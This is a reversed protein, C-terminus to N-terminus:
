IIDYQTSILSFMKLFNNKKWMHFRMFAHKSSVSYNLSTQLHGHFHVEYFYYSNNSLNQLPIFFAAFPCIIGIAKFHM